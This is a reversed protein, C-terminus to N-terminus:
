WVGSGSPFTPQGSPLGTGTVNCIVTAGGEAVLTVVDGSALTAVVDFCYSDEAASPALAATQTHTAEFTVVQPPGAAVSGTLILPAPDSNDGDVRLSLKVSSAGALSPWTGPDAFTWARGDAAKHDNGRYITIAGSPAVLSGVAVSILYPMNVWKAPVIIIGSASNSGRISMMMGTNQGATVSVFYEGNGDEIINGSSTIADVDAGDAAVTLTFTSAALGTKGVNNVTDWATISIKIATGSTPM